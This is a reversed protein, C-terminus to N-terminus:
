RLWGDVLAATDRADAICSALGVGRTAAGTLAVRHPGLESRIAAITAVHDAGYQPFAEPYRTVRVETPPDSLGLPDTLEAHLTAVLEEDTLAFARDDGSRGASVRLLVRRDDTLHAWKSSAWSCATMLGLGGRPVLFGSGDLPDAVASRDYAMTAMIVSAYAISALGDAADASLGRVIGAAPGAPCAIVVADAGREAFNAPDQGGGSRSGASNPDIVVTRDPGVSRVPVGLLPSRPLAEALADTLHDMGEPHGLFLPNDDTQAPTARRLARALSGGAQGAELLKPACVALALRDTDGANIGGILPDVLREHIEDGLRRRVFSGVTEAPSLRSDPTGDPIARDAELSRVADLSVIGSAALADPDTPVGLVLGTPLRRLIGDVLLSAHGTAPAVLQDEIGLEAALERAWPVRALFADAGTDVRVGAIISAGVKGGVRDAADVLTVDHGRQVALDYATTLGAIGAGIVTVRGM